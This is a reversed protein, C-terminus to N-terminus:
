MPTYMNSSSSFSYNSISELTHTWMHMKGHDHLLAGHDSTFIVLLRSGLGLDDDLLKMLRGIQDDVYAVQNYYNYRGLSISELDPEGKNEKPFARSSSFWKECPINDQQLSAAVKLSLSDNIPNQLGLSKLASVSPPIEIMGQLFKTQLPLRLIDGLVYDAPPPILTEKEMDDLIRLKRREDDSSSSSKRSGSNNSSGSFSSGSRGSQYRHKWQTPITNPPHPSMLSLHLFWPIHSHLRDRELIWQMSCNVLYTELYDYQSTGFDRDEGGEGLVNIHTFSDSPIPNFGAKGILATLYGHAALHQVFPTLREESYTGLGNEV